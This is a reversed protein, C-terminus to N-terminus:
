PQDAPAEAGLQSLQRRLEAIQADQQDLRESARQSASEQRAVERQLRKAEVQNRQVRERVTPPAPAPTSSAHAVGAPPAAWAPAALLIGIVALPPLVRM